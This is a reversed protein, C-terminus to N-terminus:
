SKARIAPPLEHKVMEVIARSRADVRRAESRRGMEELTIAYSELVDVLPLANLGMVREVTAIARKYHRVAPDYRRQLSYLIALRFLGYAMDESERGSVQEIIENSRIYMKEAKGFRRWALLNDGMDVLTLAVDRDEPGVERMLIDLSRHLYAEAEEHKELREKLKAVSRLTIARKRADSEPDAEMLVQIRELIPEAETFRELGILAVALNNLGPLIIPDDTGHAAEQLALSRGAHAVASLYRGNDNYFLVLRDLAIHIELADPELHMEFLALAQRHLDEAERTRGQADLATALDGTSVAVSPDHPHDAEALALAERFFREAVENEESELAERGQSTLTRWAEDDLGGPAEEDEGIKDMSEEM